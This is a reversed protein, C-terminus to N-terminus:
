AEVLVLRDVRVSIVPLDAIVEVRQLVAVAAALDHVTGARHSYRSVDRPALECVHLSLLM